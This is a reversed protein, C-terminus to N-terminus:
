TFSFGVENSAVSLEWVAVFIGEAFAARQARRPFVHRNRQSTWTGEPKDQRWDGKALHAPRSQGESQKLNRSYILEFRLGLGL